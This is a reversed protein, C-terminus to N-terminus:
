VPRMINVNLRVGLSNTASLRAVWRLRFGLRFGLGFRPRLWQAQGPTVNVPKPLFGQLTDITTVVVPKPTFGQLAGVVIVKRLGLVWRTVLTLRLGLRSRSRLRLSAVLGLSLRM